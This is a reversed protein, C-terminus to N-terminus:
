SPCCFETTPPLAQATVFFKEFKTPTTYTGVTNNWGSDMSLMGPDAQSFTVQSGGVVLPILVGDIYLTPVGAGDLNIQVTHRGQNPVWVGEYFPANANPGYQLYVFGTSDFFFDLSNLGASDQMSLDYFVEETNGVYENFIFQITAPTLGAPSPAAKQARANFFNPINYVM